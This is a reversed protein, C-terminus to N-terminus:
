ARDTEAGLNATDEDLGEEAAKSEDMTAGSTDKRRNGKGMETDPHPARHDKTTDGGEEPTSGMNGTDGDHHDM